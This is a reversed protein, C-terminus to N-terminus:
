SRLTRLAPRSLNAAPKGRCGPNEANGSILRRLAAHRRATLRGSRRVVEGSPRGARARELMVDRLRRGVLDPGPGFEYRIGTATIKETLHRNADEFSTLEAIIQRVARPGPDASMLELQARTNVLVSAAVPRRELEYSDLLGVPAWGAVEAALKWGLSFADQVGLNLGQGGTPPHIHAADGALLV